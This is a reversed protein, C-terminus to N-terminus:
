PTLLTQYTMAGSPVMTVLAAVPYAKSDFVLEIISRLHAHDAPYLLHRIQPLTYGIKDLRQFTTPNCLQLRM